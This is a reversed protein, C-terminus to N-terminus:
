LTGQRVESIGSHEPSGEWTDVCHVRADLNMHALLGNAATIASLGMWSGVELYHGGRPLHAMLNFLLILDGPLLFGRVGHMDIMGTGSVPNWTFGKALWTNKWIGMDMQTDPVWNRLWDRRAAEDNDFAM